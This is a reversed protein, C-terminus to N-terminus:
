TQYRPNEFSREADEKIGFKIPENHNPHPKILDDVSLAPESFFSNYHITMVNKITNKLQNAALYQLNVYDM